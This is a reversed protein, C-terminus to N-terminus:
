SLVTWFPLRSQYVRQFVEDDLQWARNSSTFILLHGWGYIALEVDTVAGSREDSPIGRVFAFYPSQSSIFRLANYDLMVYLVIAGVIRPAGTQPDSVCVGKEAHLIRREDAGVPIAEGSLDWTCRKGIYRSTSSTSEPYNLAFRSALTGDPKYLEV